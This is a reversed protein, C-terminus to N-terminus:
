FGKLKVIPTFLSGTNFVKGQMLNTSEGLARSFEPTGFLNDLPNKINPNKNAIHGLKIYFQSFSNIHKESFGRAYSLSDIGILHNKTFIGGLGIYIKNNVRDFNFTKSHFRVVM